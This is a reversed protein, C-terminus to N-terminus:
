FLVGIILRLPLALEYSGVWKHLPDVSESKRLRDLFELIDHRTMEKFKKNDPNHKVEALQKLKHITDIRYRDSLSIETQMALIYDIITLCNERSIKNLLHERLYPKAGEIILDLKHDLVPDNIIVDKEKQIGSSMPTLTM